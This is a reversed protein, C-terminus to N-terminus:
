TGEPSLEKVVGLRWPMGGEWLYKNLTMLPGLMTRPYLVRDEHPRCERQPSAPHPLSKLRGEEEM